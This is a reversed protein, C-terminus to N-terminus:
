GPEGGVQNRRWLTRIKQGDRLVLAQQRIQMDDQRLQGAISFFASNISHRSADFALPPGLAANAQDMTQWPQRQRAQVMARAQGLPLGKLSASILEASATNLNLTTRRPLLSVHPALREIQAPSLGIWVLQDVQQPMFPASRGDPLGAKAAAQRLGQALQRALQPPLDILDFLREAMEVDPESVKGDAVLNRLNLRAQMDEIRGSLFVGNLDALGSANADSALFSSLRAEQLPLAWPEGLHDSGGSRGDERLILCAWDLAGQLIWQTQQRQREHREVESLRWQQALAAAALSAVLSVTLMASILAAGAQPWRKRGKAKRNM